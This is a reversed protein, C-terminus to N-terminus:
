ESEVSWGVQSACDGEEARSQFRLLGFDFVTLDGKAHRLLDILVDDGAFYLPLTILSVILASNIKDAALTVAHDIPCRM